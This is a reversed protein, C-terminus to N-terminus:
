PLKIIYAIKGSFDMEDGLLKKNKGVLYLNRYSLNLSTIINIMYSKWVFIGSLKEGSQYL